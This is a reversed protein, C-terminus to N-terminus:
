PTSRLYLNKLAIEGCLLPRSESIPAIVPWDCRICIVVPRFFFPVNKDEGWNRGLSLMLSSPSGALKAAPKQREHPIYVDFVIEISCDLVKYIAVRSEDCRSKARPRAVSAEEERM